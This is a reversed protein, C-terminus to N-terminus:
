TSTLSVMKNDEFVILQLDDDDYLILLQPMVAVTMYKTPNMFETDLPTDRCCIITKKLEVLVLYQFLFIKVFCYCPQWAGILVFNGTNKAKERHKKM